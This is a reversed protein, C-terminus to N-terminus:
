AALNNNIQNNIEIKGDIVDLISLIADQIKLSPINFEVKKLSKQSLKPQASGTIYEALPMYNLLYYLFKLRCKETTTIIHAHNNVWFRGSVLNAINQKLSKLNEGDEALLIYNGDFIYDDIYDIIGQAGYYRYNGQKKSRQMSSLPIRKSDHLIAIDDFKYKM